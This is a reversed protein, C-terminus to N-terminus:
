KKLRLQGCAAAIDKGRPQRVTAHIGRRSLATKFTLVELKTPPQYACEAVPNYPILNLKCLLGKLLPGLHRVAEDSCTLNRILIYEFTIQRKTLKIYDRCAPMLEKLPYRQSVPMLEARSAEDHGHLSVSLEIQLGEGALRKIGPVIGCTSVTIRRAAIHLGEPANIARISKLVNDYNDLPEGVGMFVIHTISRDKVRRRVTLIQDLIEATTLNRQYGAMGSACFRCAFKCGVQSSICLTLRKDTPILATEIKEGDHLTMVFKKTGDRSAYEEVGVAQKLCFDEGLAQRLSVPLNTMAQFDEVGKHFIWEFIQVARFSKQGKDRVYTQLDPL